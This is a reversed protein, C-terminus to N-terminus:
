RGSVHGTTTGAIDRPHTESLFLNFKELKDVMETVVAPSAIALGDFDHRRHECIALSGLEVNMSDLITHRRDSVLRESQMLQVTPFRLGSRPSEAPSRSPTLPM